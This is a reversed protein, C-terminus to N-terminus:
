LTHLVRVRELNHHLVQKALGTKFRGSALSATIHQVSARLQLRSSILRDSSAARRWRSGSPCGQASLSLRSHVRHGDPSLKPVKGTLRPRSDLFHCFALRQYETAARETAAKDLSV